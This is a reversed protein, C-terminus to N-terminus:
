TTGFDIGILIFAPDPDDAAEEEEVIASEINFNSKRPMRRAERTPNHEGKPPRITGDEDDALNYM